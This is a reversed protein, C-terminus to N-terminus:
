TLRKISKVYIGQEALVESAKQVSYVNELVVTIRATEKKFFGEGYNAPNFTIDFHNTFNEM